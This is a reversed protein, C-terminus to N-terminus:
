RAARTVVRTVKGGRVHVTTSRKGLPTEIVFEVAAASSDEVPLKAGVLKAVESSLDGGEALDKKALGLAKAPHVVAGAIGNVRGRVARRALAVLEEDSLAASSTEAVKPRKAPKKASKTNEARRMTAKM